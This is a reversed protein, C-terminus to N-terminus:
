NQRYIRWSTPAFGAEVKNLCATLTESKICYPNLDDLGTNHKEFAIWTLPGLPVAKIHRSVGRIPEWVENRKMGNEACNIDLYISNSASAIISLGKIINVYLRVM